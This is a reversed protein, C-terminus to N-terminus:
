RRGRRAWRPAPLSTSKNCRRNSGSSSSRGWCRRERCWAPAPRRRSRRFRRAVASLEDMGVLGGVGDAAVRPRADRQAGGTEEDHASLRVGAGEGVVHLDIRDVVAGSRHRRHASGLRDGGRARAKRQQRGSRDALVEDEAAARGDAGGGRGIHRRLRHLQDVRRCAPPSRRRSCPWPTAPTRATSREDFSVGVGVFAGKTRPPPTPEVVPPTSSAIPGYSAKRSPALARTRDSRAPTTSVSTASRRSCARRRIVSPGQLDPDPVTAPAAAAATASTPTSWRTATAPTRTSSRWGSGPWRPRRSSSWTAAARTTSSGSSTATPPTRTSAAPVAAPTVDARRYYRGTAPSESYCAAGLLAVAAALMAIRM